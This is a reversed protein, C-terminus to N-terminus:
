VAPLTTFSWKVKLLSKLFRKPNQRQHYTVGWFDYSRKTQTRGVPAMSLYWAGLRSWISQSSDFGMLGVLEVDPFTRLHRLSNTVVPFIVQKPDLVLIQPHKKYLNWLMQSRHKYSIINPKHPTIDNAVILIYDLGGEKLAQLALEEHRLHFPSYSGALIGVRMGPQLPVGKLAIAEASLCTLLIVIYSVFGKFM